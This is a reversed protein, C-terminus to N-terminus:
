AIVNMTMMCLKEFANATTVNGNGMPAYEQIAFHSERMVVMKAIPSGMVYIYNQYVNVMTVNGFGMNVIAFEREKMVVMKAIVNLTMSGHSKFANDTTVYPNQLLIHAIETIAFNGIRMVVTTVIGNGIVYM